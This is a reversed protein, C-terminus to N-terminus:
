IFHYNNKEFQYSLKHMQYHESNSRSTKM